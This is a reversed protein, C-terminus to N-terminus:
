SEMVSGYGRVVGLLRTCPLRPACVEASDIGDAARTRGGWWARSKSGWSLSEGAGQRPVRTFGRMEQEHLKLFEWLNLQRKVQHGAAAGPQARTGVASASGHRPPFALFCHGQVDHFLSKRQKAESGFTSRPASGRPGVAAGVGTSCRASGAAGLQYGCGMGPMGGEGRRHQAAPPSMPAGLRESEPANKVHSSSCESGKPIRRGSKVQVRRTHVRLGHVPLLLSHRSPSTASGFGGPNGAPLPLPCLRGHHSPPAWCGEAGRRGV